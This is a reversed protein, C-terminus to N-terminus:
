GRAGRARMKSLSSRNVVKQLTLWICSTSYCPSLPPLFIFIFLHLVPTPPHPPLPTTSRVTSNPHLCTNSWPTIACTSYQLQQRITTHLFHQLWLSMSISGQCPKNGSWHAYNIDPHPLNNSFVQNEYGYHCNFPFFICGSSGPVLKAVSM